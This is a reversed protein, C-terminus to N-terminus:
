PKTLGVQCPKNATGTHRPRCRPKPEAGDFFKQNKSLAAPTQGKYKRLAHQVGKDDVYLGVAYVKPLLRVAQLSHVTSAPSCVARFALPFLVPFCPLPLACFSAVVVVPRVKLIAENFTCPRLSIVLLCDM